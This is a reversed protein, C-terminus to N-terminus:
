HINPKYSLFHTQNQANACALAWKKHSFDDSDVKPPASSYNSRKTWDPTRTYLWSEFSLARPMSLSVPSTSFVALIDPTGP